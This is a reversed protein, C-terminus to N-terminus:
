KRIEEEKKGGFFGTPKFLLFAILIVFAIADKYGSPLFWIGINEALGIFMGGVMAGPISGIGGVVAATFAKVGPVVGMTPEINQELAILVGAAAALASGIAFAVTIVKNTDIGLVTSLEPNDSAARIAKGMKTRKVFLELAVMLVIATLIITIQTPTIVIEIPTGAFIELGKVIQGTRFTRIENGFFLALLNQLFLSVAIATILQSLKHSKRLPKYAVREIIIGVVACVVMAIAFAPLMEWGMVAILAFAVYAGVMAVEGHAFNIFKLLGYVMTYGIAILAYIGGAIIGNAILQPLVSLFEAIAM